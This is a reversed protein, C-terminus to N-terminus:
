ALSIFQENINHPSKPSDDQLFYTSQWYEARWTIETMITLLTAGNLDALVAAHTYVVNGTKRDYGITAVGTESLERNLHMVRYLVDTRRERPLPGFAAQILINQPKENLSHSVNFAIGELTMEMVLTEDSRLEEDREPYSLERCLDNVLSMFAKRESHMSEM